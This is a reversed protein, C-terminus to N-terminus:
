QQQQANRRNIRLGIYAGFIVKKAALHDVPDIEIFFDVTGQDPRVAHVAIGSLADLYEKGTDDFLWVGEGREFSVPLRGYTNMLHRPPLYSSYTMEKMDAASVAGAGFM